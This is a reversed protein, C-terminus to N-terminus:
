KLGAVADTVLNWFRDVDLDIAVHANKERKLMDHLDVCTAGATETGVLEVDVRTHVTTAVAADIVLAVAVPDHLPGDPMGEVDNYSNCFFELLEAGFVGTENGLNRIRSRVDQTILAQHTINLGVMTFDIGSKLVVDVAEPDAWANFEAYAAGCNGRGTSGGMWVIREIRELLEPYTRVFHAINTLPGTPILTIKEASARVTDAILEIASREDLPVTVEPLEPGGLANEGHIWTGPTLKRELPEAAGAAIPVGTIGAVTCAVRANHTTHELYGNGSVTTIAKLDLAPNGAALWIAFVDDHGPDCDLIVPIPM